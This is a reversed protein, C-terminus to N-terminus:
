SVRNEYSKFETTFNSHLESTAEKLVSLFPLFPLFWM